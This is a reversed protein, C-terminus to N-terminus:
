SAKHGRPRGHSVNDANGFAMLMALPLWFLIWQDRPRAILIDVGTMMACAAFILICLIRYDGQQQGRRVAFRFANGLLLLFLLLGIIGGTWFIQLYANHAVSMPTKRGTDIALESLLGHGFVPRALIGQWVESWIVFRFSQGREFAQQVVEPFALLLLVVVLALGALLYSKERGLSLGSLVGLAILISAFATRSQGFWAVCMFAVMALLFLGRTIAKRSNIAFGLALLAFVGYVNAYENINTLAGIGDMRTGPFPNSMYFIFISAIAAAGAALTCARLMLDFHAPNRNVLYHTTTFFSILYVCIAGMQGLRYRDLPESWLGSLLLYAMYLAILKFLPHGSVLRISYFFAILSPISIVRAYFRYVDGYEQLFFFSCLFVGYAALLATAYISQAQAKFTLVANESHRATPKLTGPLWRPAGRSAEFFPHIICLCQWSVDETKKM